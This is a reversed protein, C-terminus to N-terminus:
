KKIFRNYVWTATVVLGVIGVVTIALKKVKQGATAKEKDIEVDDVASVFGGCCNNYLYPDDVM